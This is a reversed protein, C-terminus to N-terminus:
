NKEMMFFAIRNLYFENASEPIGRQIESSFSRAIDTKRTFNLTFNGRRGIFKGINNNV